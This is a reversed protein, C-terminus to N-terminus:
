LLNRFLIDTTGQESYALFGPLEALERLADELGAEKTYTYGLAYSSFNFTSPIGEQAQDVVPVSGETKLQMTCLGALPVFTMYSRLADNDYDNFINPFMSPTELMGRTYTKQVVKTQSAFFTRTDMPGAM